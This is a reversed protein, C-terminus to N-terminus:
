RAFNRLHWGAYDDYAARWLAVENNYDETEGDAAHMKALVYHTYVDSFRDQVLLVTEKDSEYTYPKLEGAPNKRCCGSRGANMNLPDMEGHFPGYMSGAENRAGSEIGAFFKMEGSWSGDANRRWFILKGPSIVRFTPYILEEFVKGEVENIWLTKMDNDFRNGPLLTDITKIITDLTM